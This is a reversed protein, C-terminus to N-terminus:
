VKIGKMRLIKKQIVTLDKAFDLIRTLYEKEIYQTEIDIAPDSHYNYVGEGEDNLMADSSVTSAASMLASLDAVSVHKPVTKGENREIDFSDNVAKTLEVIDEIGQRGRISNARYLIKKDTPYFHIVTDSYDSIMNGVMRGICVSRFVKSYPGNWKDVGAALGMSCISIFDILTLPGKPTKRFFLKARNVALPMNLEILKSRAAHVKQFLKEAKKPFPGLWSDRIFKILQYNINFKKLGEIDNKKITPTVNKSFSVASERFYPRASLINKNVVKIKQLWRKYMETSQRNYKLITEKFQIELALLEEVQEKQTTPNKHRSIQKTIENALTYFSQDFDYETKKKKM